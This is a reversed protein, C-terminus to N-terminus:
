KISALLEEVAGMVMSAPLEKLCKFDLGAQCKLPRPSYYFCPSCPLELSVIRHEVKWPHVWRYNTPGFIAVTPVGVAAALHMLGSDNSVFIDCRHILAAAQRITPTDVLFLRDKERVLDRIREKADIDEPGGFVLVRSQTFKQHFLDIFEAFREPPWRRNIHGKLKSTGPHIGIVVGERKQFAPFKEAEEIEHPELFYQLPYDVLNDDRLGLLKILDLNQLVVHRDFREKITRNKLFNLSILDDKLYRHGLRIPAGLLFAFVNYHYRNSPYFNITVDFKGRFGLLFRLAEFKSAKLFPFFHIRDIHPNGKLVDLHVKSMVFIEISHDPLNEKLNRIAPTAMLLDGIGFIPIIGIRKM